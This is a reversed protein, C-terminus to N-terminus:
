MCLGLLEEIYLCEISYSNYLTCVQLNLCIIIPQYEGLSPQETISLSRDLSDSNSRAHVLSNQSTNLPRTNMMRQLRDNDAKLAGM